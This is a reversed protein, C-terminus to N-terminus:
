ITYRFGPMGELIKGEDDAKRNERRYFLALGGTMIICLAMCGITAYLGPKYEPYDQERFITSGVIGGLGAFITQIPVAVQRESNSAVNNALFALVTPICCNNGAVALFIGALKCGTNNGFGIMILGVIVLICYGIIFPSRKRVRDAYIGTTISLLAAFIYPPTSLIQSLAVSYGLSQLITPIFFAMAYAGSSPFLFLVAMSLIRWNTIVAILSRKSVRDELVEGRDAMLRERVLELERPKLWAAKEPFESVFLYIPLALAITVAGPVIFVWRWGRLGGAGEMQTLGYSLIGNFGSVTAGFM